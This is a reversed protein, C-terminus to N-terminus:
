THKSAAKVAKKWERELFEARATPFEQAWIRIIQRSRGSLEAIEVPHALGRKLMYRAAAKTTDDDTM